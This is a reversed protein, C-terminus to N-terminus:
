GSDATTTAPVMQPPKDNGDEETSKFILIDSLRVRLILAAVPGYIIHPATLLVHVFIAYTAAQLEPVGLAKMVGVVGVEFVGFGAQTIPISGAVNATVVLLMYAPFSLDIGLAQGSMYFMLTECMWMVQATAVLIAFREPRRLPALGTAFNYLQKGLWNRKGKGTPPGTWSEGRKALTIAGALASVAVVAVLVGVPWLFTAESMLALGIAIYLSFTLLDSLIESLMVAVLGAPKVGTRQSVIRLRIAEGARLPILFNVASGIHASFFLLYVPPRREEPLMQQWRVARFFDSALNALLLAPIWYLDAKRLESWVDAPHVRFSLGVLLAVALIIPLFPRAAKLARRM